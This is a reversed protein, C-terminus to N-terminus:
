GLKVTGAQHNEKEKATRESDVKLLKRRPLFLHGLLVWSMPFRLCLLTSLHNSLMPPYDSFSGKCMDQIENFDVFQGFSQLLQQPVLM